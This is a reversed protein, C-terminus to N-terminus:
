KWGPRRAELDERSVGHLVPVFPKDAEYGGVVESNVPRSGLSHKSIILVLGECQKIAEVMQDLYDAATVADREYYWVGFGRRELADGLEVAVEQDEAVHSIFLQSM